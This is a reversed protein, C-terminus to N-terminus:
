NRNVSKNKYSNSHVTPSSLLFIFKSNPYGPLVQGLEINIIYNELSMLYVIYRIACLQM